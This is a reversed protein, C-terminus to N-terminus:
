ERGENDYYVNWADVAKGIASVLDKVSATQIYGPTLRTVRRAVERVQEPSKLVYGGGDTEITVPLKV